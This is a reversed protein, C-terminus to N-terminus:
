RELIIKNLHMFHTNFIKLQYVATVTDPYILRNRM